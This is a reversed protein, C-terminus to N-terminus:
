PTAPQPGLLSERLRDLAERPVGHTTLYSGVDGAIERAMSLVRLMMHADAGALSTLDVRANHQNLDRFFEHGLNEATLAYDRAVDEDSVGLASLILGIIIGTRDKGATCHVLAPLAERACLETVVGAIPGGLERIATEYLRDMSSAKSPDAAVVPGLGFTRAVIRPPRGAFTAPKADREEPERLDIVTRLALEDLECAHEDDLLPLDSRFLLGQRVRRGDSTAYGGVDRCNKTGGLPVLRGVKEMATM